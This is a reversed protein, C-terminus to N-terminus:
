LVENESAQPDFPFLPGEDEFGPKWLLTGCSPCKFVVVPDYQPETDAGAIVTNCKPCKKPPDFQIKKVSTMDGM